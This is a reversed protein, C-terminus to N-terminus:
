VSDTRENYLSISECTYQIAVASLQMATYEALNEMFDSISIHKATVIFVEKM